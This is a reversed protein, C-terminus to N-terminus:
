QDCGADMGSEVHYCCASRRREAWAAQAANVLLNMWVQNLQGAYADILTTAGYNRNLVINDASFYRSLIRITSDIGEHVDTKKFEAEDLRSFIRLNQVIDKIRTTGERCDAIISDLDAVADAYHISDKIAAAADRIEPSLGANDYYALLGTIGKLLDDLAELNSHVFGVPNNLEHAIGAALQGLSAM